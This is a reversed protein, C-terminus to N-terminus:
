FDVSTQPCCMAFATMDLASAWFGCVIKNLSSCKSLYRTGGNAITLRRLRRRGTSAINETQQNLSGILCASMPIIKKYILFEWHHEYLIWDFGSQRNLVWDLTSYASQNIISLLSFGGKSNCLFICKITCPCVAKLYSFHPLFLYM